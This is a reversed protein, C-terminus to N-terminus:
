AAIRRISDQWVPDIKGLENLERLHRLAWDQRKRALSGERKSKQSQILRKLVHAEQPAMKQELREFLGETGPEFAKALAIFGLEGLFRRAGLKEGELELISYRADELLRPDEEQFANVRALIAKADPIEFRNLAIEAARRPMRIFALALESLGLSHFLAELEEVKLGYLHRFTFAELQHSIRMPVFHKEFRRRIIELIENPVYFAEMMKPLGLVIRKPLNELLYRVHRSPLHRLIVGIVRPSEAGLIELLWAPHIEALSSFREQAVLSKLRRGCAEASNGDQAQRDIAARLRERSAEGLVELLAAAEQKGESLGLAAVTEWHIDNESRM